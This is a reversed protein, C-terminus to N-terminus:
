YPARQRERRPRLEKAAQFHAVALKDNTFHAAPAGDHGEWVSDLAELFEELSALRQTPTLSLLRDIQAVDIDEIFSQAMERIQEFEAETM